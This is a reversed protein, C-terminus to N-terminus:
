GAGAHAVHPHETYASAHGACARHTASVLIAERLWLIETGCECTCMQDQDHSAADPQWTCYRAYWASRAAHARPRPAGGECLARGADIYASARASSSAFTGNTGHQCYYTPIVLAVGLYLRVTAVHGM